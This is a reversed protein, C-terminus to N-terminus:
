QPHRFHELSTSEGAGPVSIPHTIIDDTAGLAIPRSAASSAWQTWAQPHWRVRLLTWRLTAILGEVVNDVVELGGTLLLFLQRLQHVAAAVALLKETALV